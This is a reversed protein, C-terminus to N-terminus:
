EAAPPRALRGAARAPGTTPSHPLRSSVSSCSPCRKAASWWARHGPRHRRAHGLRRLRPQRRPHHDPDLEATYTHDDPPTVSASYHNPALNPITIDGNTDSMCKGPVTPNYYGTIPDPPAPTQAPLPTPRGTNDVIILGTAPDTKYKTCLANGFYDATVIGDVDNILGNFGLLGSENAEDFTGDAPKTDAFAKLRITGLPIPFPNLFVKVVGPAKMPVSFHTGGIQYGDATLSALYRCAFM